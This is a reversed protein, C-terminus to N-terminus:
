LGDFSEVPDVPLGEESYKVEEVNEEAPDKPDDPVVTDDEPGELEIKAM